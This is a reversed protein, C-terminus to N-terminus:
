PEVLAADIRNTAVNLLLDLKHNLQEQQAMCEAYSALYVRLLANNEMQQTEVVKKQFWGLSVLCTFIAIGIASLYLTKM